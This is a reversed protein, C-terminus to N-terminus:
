SAVSQQERVQARVLFIRQGITIVSAVALLALAATIAKPADFIDALGTVVLTLVLRDAREAIGVDARLGLGEARARVYSVITSLVLCVLALAGTVDDNGGHTFWWALGAFIAADGFRDLSSDLFAGWPGSRELQRAMMGDIADSFVFLTVVLVGTILEGQPFFWLAGACVGVTGVFTVADPSVGLRLLLAAIPGLVKQLASRAYRNLVAWLRGASPLRTM